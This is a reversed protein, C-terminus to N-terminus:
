CTLLGRKEWWTATKLFADRCSDYIGRQLHLDPINHFEGGQLEEWQQQQVHNMTRCLLELVTQQM